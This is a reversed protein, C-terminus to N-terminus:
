NGNGAPKAKVKPHSFTCNGNSFFRVEAISITHSNSLLNFNLQTFVYSISPVPFCFTVLSDCSTPNTTEITAVIGAAPVSFTISEVAIGWDPCNFMVVEVKSLIVATRTRTISTSWDILLESQQKPFPQLILLQSAWDSSNFSLVAPFYGNFLVSSTVYPSVCQSMGQQSLTSSCQGTRSSGNVSVVDGTPFSYAISVFSKM